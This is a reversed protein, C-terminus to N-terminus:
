QLREARFWRGNDLQMRFSGFAAKRITATDPPNRSSIQLRTSDTQTWVQGNELTILTKGNAGTSVTKVPEAIESLETDEDGGGFKPMVLKPLSPLSFGFSEREVQKVDDRSLTVIEGATEAEQLRGVAADYCALREIDDSVSASAYVTSTSVPASEEATAPLCLGVVACTALLVQKMSNMEQETTGGERELLASTQFM